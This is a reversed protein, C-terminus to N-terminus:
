GVAAPPMVLPREEQRRQWTWVEAIVDMPAMWDARSEFRHFSTVDSEERRARRPMRPPLRQVEGLTLWERSRDGVLEFEIQNGVRQGMGFSETARGQRVHIQHAVLSERDRHYGVYLSIRGRPLRQQIHLFQHQFVWRVQLTPLSDAADGWWEGIWRHLLPDDWQDFDRPEPLPGDDLFLMDVEAPLGGSPSPRREGFDCFFIFGM